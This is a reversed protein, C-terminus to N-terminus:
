EYVRIKGLVDLSRLKEDLERETMLTTVVATEGDYLKPLITIDDGLVSKIKETDSGSIRVYMRVSDDLHDAIFSDDECPTWAIPMRDCKHSAIDAIDAVVASATPLKGAGRGYFMLEGAADGVVSVANFVDDVSSLMNDLPVIAPRVMPLIRGNELLKVSAILKIKGGFADAYAVDQLTLMSIGETYIKDPNVEKGYALDSLIAIKRCADHGDVDASPNREAYGLKQALALADDFSMSETIMKHLIFNTTGNVIGAMSLIINGALCRRLPRIIPIAGGVAAEFMYCCDNDEALSLLEAGKKAVLEKNPTVVSIGASLLKKTFEYAKGVGGICEAVIEIEDDALVVDISKVLKDAYPSDPFDAIDVIYKLEVDAGSRKKVESANNELIEATGSGVTGFGLIAVKSSM